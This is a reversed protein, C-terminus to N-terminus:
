SRISPTIRLFSFPYLYIARYFPITKTFLISREISCYLDIYFLVIRLLFTHKNRLFIHMITVRNSAKICQLHAHGIRVGYAMHLSIGIGESSNILNALVCNSCDVIVRTILKLWLLVNM